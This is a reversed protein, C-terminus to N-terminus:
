VGNRTLAFADTSLGEGGIWPEFGAQVNTLFWSPEVVGRRTADTIFDSIPLDLVTTTSGERVYSIVPLGENEGQWIEWRADGIEVDARKSGIPQVRDTRDLWIMLEAGTNAGDRRPTPDLWVDYAVNYDGRRPVTVAWSSRM